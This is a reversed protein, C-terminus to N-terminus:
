ASILSAEANLYIDFKYALVSVVDVLVYVYHYNEYSLWYTLVRSM